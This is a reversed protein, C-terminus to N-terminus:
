VGMLYIQRKDSDNVKKKLFIYKYIVDKNIILKIIGKKFNKNDIIEESAGGIIFPKYRSKTLFELELQYIEFTKTLNNNILLMTDFGNLTQLCKIALKKHSEIFLDKYLKDNIM